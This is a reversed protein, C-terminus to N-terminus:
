SEWTFNPEIFNAIFNLASEKESLLQLNKAIKFKKRIEKAIYKPMGKKELEKNSLFDHLLKEANKFKREAYVVWRGGLIFPSSLSIPNKGSYKKLFEEEFKKMGVEPGTRLEADPLEFCSLEFLIFCNNADDSFAYSRLVNFSSKQFLSKLLKEAKRLQSYLVDDIIEPKSFKIGIVALNRKELRKKLESKTIRRKRPFFFNINPSELFRRSAFSFYYFNEESLASAVNRDRDVPDIFILPAKEFLLLRSSEEEEADRKRSRAKVINITEGRKWGRANKLVEEFSGYKITLLECLYGSFGQVKAEAGYIGIGKLFQKLMRVEDEKGALNERAFKDHFPTRDVSSLLKTLKKVKYCPVIEAEHGNFEGKIYPHEAYKKEFNKLVKKGIKEAVSEMKEIKYKLPFKLFVDIDKEDKLWTNRSISGLVAIEIKEDIKKVERLIVSTLNKAARQMEEKEKKGPKIRGIVEEKLEAINM